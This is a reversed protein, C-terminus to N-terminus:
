RCSDTVRDLAQAADHGMTPDTMAQVSLVAATLFGHIRGGASSLVGYGLYVAQLVM